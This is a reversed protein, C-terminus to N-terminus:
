IRIIKTEFPPDLTIIKLLKYCRKKGESKKLGIKFPPLFFKLFINAIAESHTKNFVIKM